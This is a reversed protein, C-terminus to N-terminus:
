EKRTGAPMSEFFKAVGPESGYSKATDIYRLGNAYGMRLLRDLTGPAQWTGQNLITVDIGTKGLPRRPLVASKNEPDAATAGQAASGLTLATATAAAGTQLFGRRNVPSVGNDSMFTEGEVGPGNATSAGTEGM